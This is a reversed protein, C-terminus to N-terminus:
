SITRISCNNVLWKIKILCKIIHIINYYQINKLPISGFLIITKILGFFDTSLITLSSVNIVM